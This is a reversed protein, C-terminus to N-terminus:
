AIEDRNRSRTRDTSRADAYEIFTGNRPEIRCRVDGFYSSHSRASGTGTCSKTSYAPSNGRPRWRRIGCPGFVGSDRDALTMREHQRLPEAWPCVAVADDTGSIRQRRPFHPAAIFAVALDATRFERANV